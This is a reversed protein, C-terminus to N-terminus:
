RAGGQGTLAAWTVPGSGERALKLRRNVTDRTVGLRAAIQVATLLEGEIWWSAAVNKAAGGRAGSLRAKASTLRLGKGAPTM